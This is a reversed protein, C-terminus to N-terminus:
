GLFVKFRALIDISEPDLKVYIGIRIQTRSAPRSLSVQAFFILKLSIIRMLFVSSFWSSRLTRKIKEGCIKFM